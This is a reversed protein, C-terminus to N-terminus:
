KKKGKKGGSKNKGKWGDNQRQKKEKVKKTKDKKQLKVNGKDKEGKNAVFGGDKKDKALQKGKGGGLKEKTKDKDIGGLVSQKDLKDKLNKNGGKDKDILSGLKEQSGGKRDKLKQTQDRLDPYKDGRDKVFDDFRGDGGGKDRWDKFDEHSGAYDKMRDRLDGDNEFWGNPLDGRNDDMWDRVRENGGGIWINDRDVNVIVESSFDPYNDWHDHDDDFLWDAFAYTVLGTVVLEGIENIYYGAYDQQQYPYYDNYGPPPGYYYPYPQVYGEATYGPAPATQTASNDVSVNVTVDSDDETTDVDVETTPDADQPAPAAIDNQDAYAQSAAILQQTAEPNAELQQAWSQVADDYEDDIQQSVEELRALVHVKDRQYVEAIKAVIEPNENMASLAEPHDIVIRFASEVPLPLQSLVATVQDEAQLRIDHAQDILAPQKQALQLLAEQAKAPQDAIAARVADESPSDGLAKVKDLMAPYRVVEWVLAQDERPMQGVLDRFAKRSGDAIKGLDVIVDPHLTTELIAERVDPPYLALARVAAREQDTLPAKGPEDPVDAVCDELAPLAKTTGTLPLQVSGLDGNSFAVQSGQRFAAVVDAEAGAPVLLVTPTVAAAQVEVDVWDDLQFRLTTEYDDAFNWSENRLGISLVGDKNLTFVLDTEGFDRLMYCARFTAGDAEYVAAGAWGSTQFDTGEIMQVAASATGTLASLMLGALWTGKRM